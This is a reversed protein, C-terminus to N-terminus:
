NLNPGAYWTDRHPKFVYGAGSELYKNYPSGVKPKDFFIDENQLNM